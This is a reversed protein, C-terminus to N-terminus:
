REEVSKQRRRYVGCTFFAVLPLTSYTFRVDPEDFGISWRCSLRMSCEPMQAPCWLVLLKLAELLTINRSRIHMLAGGVALTWRMSSARVREPKEVWILDLYVVM